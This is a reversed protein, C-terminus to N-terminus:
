TIYNKCNLFCFTSKPPLFRHIDDILQGPTRLKGMLLKAAECLRLEDEFYCFSQLVQLVVNSIVYRGILALVNLSIVIKSVEYNLKIKVISNGQVNVTRAHPVKSQFFSHVWCQMQQTNRVTASALM